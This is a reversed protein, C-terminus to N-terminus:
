APFGEPANGWHEMRWRKHEYGKVSRSAKELARSWPMGADQNSQLRKLFYLALEDVQVGHHALFEEPSKGELHSPSDEVELVDNAYHGIVCSPSGDESYYLCSGEGDLHWDCSLAETGEEKSCQCRPDEFQQPYQFHPNKSIVVTIGKIVHELTIRDDDILITL